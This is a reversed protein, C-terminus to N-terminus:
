GDHAIKALPFIDALAPAGSVKGTLPLSHSLRGRASLFIIM